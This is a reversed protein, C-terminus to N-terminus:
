KCISIFNIKIGKSNTAFNEGQHSGSWVNGTLHLVNFQCPMYLQYSYQSYNIKNHIGTYLKKWVVGHICM